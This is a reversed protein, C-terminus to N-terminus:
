PPWLTSHCDTGDELALAWPDGQKLSFGFANLWPSPELLSPFCSFLLCCSGKSADGGKTRVM